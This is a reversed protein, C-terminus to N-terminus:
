DPLAAASQVANRLAILSEFGDRHAFRHFKMSTLERNVRREYQEDNRNIAEPSNTQCAEFKENHMKRAVFDAAIRAHDPTTRRPGVKKVHTKIGMNMLTNAVLANLKM